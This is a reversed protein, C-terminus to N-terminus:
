TSDRTLLRSLVVASKTQVVEPEARIAELALELHDTDSARLRLLANAEGTVTYAAMVERHRRVLARIQEASTRGSCYLEVFAEIGWGLARPEVLATFGTLVGEARLRDVRRKVAPASLGVKAGVTAFSARANVQLEAIIQRDIRDLRLSDNMRLLTLANIRM